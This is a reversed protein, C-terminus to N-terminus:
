IIESGYIPNFNIMNVRHGIQLLVNVLMKSILRVTNRSIINRMGHSINLGISNVKFDQANISINILEYSLKKNQKQCCAFHLLDFKIRWADLINWSVWFRALEGFRHKCVPWWMLQLLMFFSKRSQARVHHRHYRNNAADQWNEGGIM